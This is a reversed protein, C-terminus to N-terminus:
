TKKLEEAEKERAAYGLMMAGILGLIIGIVSINPNYYGHRARPMNSPNGEFSCLAIIIGIGLLIGGIIGM